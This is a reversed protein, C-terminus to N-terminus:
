HSANESNNQNNKIYFATECLDRLCRSLEEPNSILYNYDELSIIKKFYDYKLTVGHFLKARMIGAIEIADINSLNYNKVSNFHNLTPSYNNNAFFSKIHKRSEQNSGTISELVMFYRASKYIHNVEKNADHFLSLSFNQNDIIKEANNIFSLKEELSIWLRHLKNYQVLETKYMIKGNLKAVKFFEVTSQGSILSLFLKAKELYISCEKELNLINSQLGNSKHLIFCVPINDSYDKNFAEINHTGYKYKFTEFFDKIYDIYHNHYLPKLPILLTNKYIEIVEDISPGYVLVGYYNKENLYNDIIAMKNENHKGSVTPPKAPRLGTLRLLRKRLRFFNWFRVKQGSSAM